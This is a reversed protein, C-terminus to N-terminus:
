ETRAKMMADAVMYAAQADEEYTTEDNSVFFQMAHAAFFDRVTMGILPTPQGNENTASAFHQPVPFAPYMDKNKM